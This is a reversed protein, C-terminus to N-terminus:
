PATAKGSTATKAEIAACDLNDLTFAPRGLEVARRRSYNRGQNIAVCWTHVNAVRNLVQHRQDAALTRALGDAKGAVVELRQVARDTKAGQKNLRVQQVGGVALVVALAALAITRATPHTVSDRLTM